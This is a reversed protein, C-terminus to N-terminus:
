LTHDQIEGVSVCTTTRQLTSLKEDIKRNRRQDRPHRPPMTRVQDSPCNLPSAAITAYVPLDGWARESVRLTM